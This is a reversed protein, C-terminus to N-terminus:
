RGSPRNPRGRSVTTSAAHGFSSRDIKTPSASGRQAVNAWPKLLELLWGRIPFEQRAVVTAPADQLASEWAMARTLCGTSRALEMWRLLEERSGLGTFPELYADQIRLLRPDAM